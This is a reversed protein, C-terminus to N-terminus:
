EGDGSSVVTIAIAVAFAFAFAIPIRRVLSPVTHPRPPTLAGADAAIEELPGRRRGAIAWKTNTYKTAMLKYIEMGVTSTIGFVVVDYERSPASM